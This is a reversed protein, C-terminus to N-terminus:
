TGKGLTQWTHGGLLDEEALAYQQSRDAALRLDEIPEREDLSDCAEWVAGADGSSTLLPRLCTSHDDMFSRRGAPDTIPLASPGVEMRSSARRSGVAALKVGRSAGPASGSQAYAGIRLRGRDTRRDITAASAAASSRPVGNWFRYDRILSCVHRSNANRSKTTFPAMIPPNAKIPQM